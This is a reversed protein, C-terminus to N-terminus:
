DWVATRPGTITAGQRILFRRCRPCFPRSAAIASPQLGLYRAAMVAKVEAHFPISSSVALGVPNRLGFATKQKGTINSNAGVAAIDVETEVGKAHLVATTRYKQGGESIEVQLADAHDQLHRTDSPPDSCNHVLIPTTSALVHYTHTGDITLDHAPTNNTYQRVATVQGWTGASTQLWNGTTISAIPVWAKLDPVWIPHWDTAELTATASGTTGDTDITLETRTPENDHVWTAVVPRAETRGTEPDTALVIDDLTIQEIPKSSGDAMLVKTGPPFSHAPCSTPKDKTAARAADRDEVFKKLRDRVQEMGEEAYKATLQAFNGLTHRAANVRDEWHLAKRVARFVKGASSVLKLMRGWPIIGACAWLDFKTFCDRVDNVGTLDGLVDPLEERLVDWFGRNSAAEEEMRRIDEESLGTQQGARKRAQGNNEKELRQQQQYYEWEDKRQQRRQENHQTCADGKLGNVQCHDVHGCKVGDPGCNTLLGSADNFTVPSNNAYAYGNIQQADANNMIPDVSAFRGTRPDYERAGMSSLGTADRISGALGKDDPWAPSVRGRSNGFPDSFQRVIGLTSAVIALDDTGNHDGLIWTLQGNLSNRMAVGGGAHSYYRKATVADNSKHLIVEHGPLYLTTANAERKILRSGGSDYLYESVKGDAETVKNVRGEANWELTQTNGGLKRTRLNGAEDYTYEDKATGTPGVRTVSNLAHPRVASPGSAPVEYTETVDGSSTHQVQTKRNGIRDYTFDQWYPAPGGLGAVTKPATCDGNKPTWASTMRRLYDYNFCQTEAINAAAAQTMKTINGAPDYTYTRDSVPAWPDGGTHVQSRQLRRTGEMYTNNIWVKRPSEGLTLMLTEGYASYTHESAIRSLGNTESPLDFENYKHHVAEAPLGGVAPLDEAQVLGTIASYHARYQYTGALKGESAPIVVSTFKPRNLEDYEDVQQVYANGDVYRTSSTPLGKRLTDFVTETLKTKVGNVEESTTTQRGLNDYDYVLKRGRADTTSTLQDMIDYTSTSVGTDPDSSWYKRGLRDYRYEWVNGQADTVKSLHGKANYTYRTSDYAASSPYHGNGSRQHYDRREVVAGLANKVVATATGGEPPTTYTIDGSYRTMTRWQEVNLVKQITETPRDLDDFETVTQNPVPADPDFMTTSVPDQNYYANNVKFANGRSDYFTDTLIRGGIPSPTQTQRTRLMGDLLNYSTVYQENEKLSKSTVVTPADKRYEYSYEANPSKGAEKSRGPKWVKVLRGLPDYEVDSREGNLGFETLSSGRKTDLLSRTEWGARNVTIMTHPNGTDPIYRITTEGNDADISKTTRGYQDVHSTEIRQFGGNGDWRLSATVVGRDPPMSFPRGDFHSRVYNTIDEDTGPWASCPKAITKVQAIYTFMWKAENRLYQKETCTEDGAVAIDGETESREALGLTNYQSSARTQRWTGDGQLTRELTSKLVVLAARDKGDTATEIVQPEHVSASVVQGGSLLRNERSFGSLQDVDEVRGGFDEVWVDRAPAGNPQFDGDMGRLFTKESVSRTQEVAGRISRVRHFGRWESWTRYKAEAEENSDYHWMARDDHFYQFESQTLSPGGTRSDETVKQVVYKHFWDMVPDKHGSPTWYMPYCRMKNDHPTPLNGPTCEGPLYTVETVGGAENQIRTLRYRTIPIIESDGGVRNPLPNGTFTVEPLTATGGVHGTRTIGSLWLSRAGGDVTPPFEQRLSWSDVDDFGSGDQRLSQTVVKTLRKRTFFAPAWRDACDEGANCIRDFPVDPWHVATDKNLQGPDCTIAGSPLCREADEFVVQAPPKSSLANERLGYEIRALRNASDYQTNVGRFGNRQYFNTEKHYFFAMVNGHPDIVTDVNWRYAQMCMSDAYAARYCPEGTHNGYVPMTLVSNMEPKDSDPLRNRGLFYQTGDITTVKWHEGKFGEQPGGIREIKSGDDKEPRLRGDAGKILKGSMGGLSITYKEDNWCMDGTQKNPDQNNPIPKDRDTECATYAREIFGGTSLDWGEGVWSSQNNTASTRGDVSGASYGFALQPAPGGPAAPLILPVSYTFDGSSDGASWSGSPSLSTASYNGGSGSAEATAALVAGEQSVAPVDATLEKQKADNKTPLPTAVQCEPKDPTTLVCAPYRKFTLRSGYDDGYAHGFGSYNLRVTTNEGKSATTVKLMAGAVRAKASVDQGFTEVSVKVDNQASVAVPSKGVQQPAGRGRTDVESKDAAPWAVPKVPETPMAMNPLPDIKAPGGTVNREKQATPASPDVQAPLAIATVSTASVMVAAAVTTAKVLLARVRM